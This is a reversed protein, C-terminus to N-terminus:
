PNDRVPADGCGKDRELLLSLTSWNAQNPLDSSGLVMGVGSTIAEGGIGWFKDVSTPKISTAISARALESAVLGGNPEPSLESTGVLAKVRSSIPRTCQTISEREVFLWSLVRARGRWFLNACVTCHGAFCGYMELKNAAPGTLRIRDAPNSGSSPWEEPGRM